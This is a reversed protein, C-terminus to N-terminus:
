KEEIKRQFYGPAVNMTALPFGWGVGRLSLGTINVVKGVVKGIRIGRVGIIAFVSFAQKM